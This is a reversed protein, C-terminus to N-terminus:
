GVILHVPSWHWCGPGHAVTTLQYLPAAGPKTLAAVQTVQTCFWGNRDQPPDSELPMLVFDGEQPVGRHSRLDDTPLVRRGELANGRASDIVWQNYQDRLCSAEFYSWGSDVFEDTEHDYVGHSGNGEDRLVTYRPGAMQPSDVIDAIPETTTM